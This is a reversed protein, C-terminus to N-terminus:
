SRPAPANRHPPVRFGAAKLAQNVQLAIQPAGLTDGHICITDVDLEKLTGDHTTVSGSALGVAQAAAKAPDTLLAGALKRDRLSGNPEYARDAFGERLYPLDREGAARELQSYPLGVLPMSPSFRWIAEVVAGALAPDACASNYLAGHPKVHAVEAGEGRAIAWLAGLQFLLMTVIEDRSLALQRRGFGKLDPYGPHAGVAVGFRMALRVTAAMVDPDGAHAGCAVNASTIHPMIAEDDGLKWPGFSEGM